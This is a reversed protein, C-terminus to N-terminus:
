ECDAPRAASRKQKKRRSWNGGLGHQRLIFRITTQTVSLEVAIEEQTMGQARLAKAKAILRKDVVPM